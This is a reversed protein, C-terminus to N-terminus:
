QTPPFIVYKWIVFGTQQNSTAAGILGPMLRLACPLFGRKFLIIPLELLMEGSTFSSVLHSDISDGRALLATWDLNWKRNTM